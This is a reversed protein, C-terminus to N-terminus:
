TQSTFSRTNEDEAECQCDCDADFSNALWVVALGLLAGFGYAAGLIAHRAWIPADYQVAESEAILSYVEAAVCIAIVLVVAAANAIKGM